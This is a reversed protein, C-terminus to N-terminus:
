QGARRAAAAYLPVLADALLLRDFRAARRHGMDGLRRRQDPRRVLKTVAEALAQADGSRFCVGDVGDDVIEAAGGEGSAVVSRGCAMAEAIVLGFPEPEISAHVVVDLARMAREPLDVFGTFGVRDDLGLSHARARLSDLSRESAATEYIPGGVVYGRVPLDRPLAAMADLFLDHGKWRAMVAVLGVRVTADSAPPLGSREDLDLTPGTPEFRDLDIGNHVTSVPTRDHLVGRVDSAVSDSVAVIGDCRGALRRLLMSSLPRHGLYEHMHWVLATGPPKAAAGLLHTKFGNAHILDARRARILARLRRLYGPVVLAARALRPVARTRDSTAGYEGFRALAPPFPLIDINVGQARAIAVLPGDGPAVLTLVWSPKARRVSVLLDRLSAEAGGLQSSTTLFILRM